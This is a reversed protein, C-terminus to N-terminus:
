TQRDMVETLTPPPPLPEEGQVSDNGINQEGAKADGTTKEQHQNKLLSEKKEERFMEKTAPM